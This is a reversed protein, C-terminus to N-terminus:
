NKRTSETIALGSMAPLTTEVFGDRVEIMQGKCGFMSPSTRRRASVMDCYTGDAMSTPVRISVPKPEINLAFWGKAERSFAIQGGQQSNWWDSLGAAGVENRFKVLALVDSERHECLWGSKGCRTTGDEAWVALTEGSSNVPPGEYDYQFQYGSMLAVTGYNFALLFMNALTHLAGDRYTLVLGGGGHGRQNDHNDTFVVAKEPPLFGWGEGMSALASLNGRRFLNGLTLGVRFETVSGNEIYERSSIPEGGQDIVEQFIFSPKNLKSVIAGIDGSAMHKAADIRFGRVGIRIQENLFDAITRRVSESGTNLDALGLLECNQVEWRDQYNRIVNDSHRGCHHFDAFSFLGPYSYRQYQSGASGAESQNYPLTQAMHNIVADSIVVVGAANCRRVMNEFEARSGSRSELKYSVPQYRQFWPSNPMLRHEQPPSIQVADIGAPGLVSECERAVDKWTWEFLHVYSSVEPISRIRTFSSRETSRESSRTQSLSSDTNSASGCSILWWCCAAAFAIARM